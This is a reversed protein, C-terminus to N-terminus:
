SLSSFKFDKLCQLRMAIFYTPKFQVGEHAQPTQIRQTIHTEEVYKANRRCELPMM